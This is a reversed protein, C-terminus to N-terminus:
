PSSNCITTFQQTPAPFWILSHFLLWQAMEGAMSKLYKIHGSYSYNLHDFGTALDMHQVSEGQHVAANLGSPGLAIHFYDLYFHM